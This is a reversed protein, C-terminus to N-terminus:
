ALEEGNFLINAHIALLVSDLADPSHGIHRKITSKPVVQMKGNNKREASVFPLIDKIQRYADKEFWIKNSEILSQLDLHMEARCNTAQVAAYHHASVRGKTPASGFNVGKAYVGRKNLGEVLWVGFGIDVTVLPVYFHRAIRAIQDCIDEGTVGDIWEPPTAITATEEVMGIANGDVDTTVSFLTVDIKDVGKYAADVGLFYQKYPDEELSPVPWTAPDDRDYVKPTDFMSDSETDLECLLYRTCTDKRKFFESGLVQKTTFRGEEVATLVDMWIICTNEPVDEENISDWFTGPNHPNSIQIIQYPPADVNSFETRGLESLAKDSVLAAEDVLYDGSRGVAKNQALSDTFTDGLTIPEISGGNRFAIRTKSLATSLKELQSKQMLLEDQVEQAVTQTAKVTYGMIIGTLDNTSGTIYTPHGLYANILGVMGLLWSKGYQSPTVIYLKHFDRKLIVGAILAQTYFLSVGFYSGIMSAGYNAYQRAQREGLSLRKYHTPVWGKIWKSQGLTMHPNDTSPFNDLLAKVESQASM